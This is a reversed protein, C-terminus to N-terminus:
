VSRDGVPDPLDVAEEEMEFGLCEQRLVDEAEEPSLQGVGGEEEGGGQGVIGNGVNQGCPLEPGDQYGQSLLDHRDGQGPPDGQLSEVPEVRSRELGSSRRM